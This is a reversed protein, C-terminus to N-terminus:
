RGAGAARLLSRIEDDSAERINNSRFPHGASAVVMAELEEPGASGEPFSAEFGIREFFPEIQALLRLTRADDIAPRNFEAVHPLMLGTRRGHPLHVQPAAALAHSLGMGSNGCALNAATAAELLAQLRGDNRGDSNAGSEVGELVAPLLEFVSQASAYAITRTFSSARKAWLSEIGHSLADLGSYLVVGRPANRLLAADLIAVRPQSGEVRISLDSARDEDHLVLVRSVESGSGATTPIAITPAPAEPVAIRGELEGVRLPNTLLIATAKGVALASGGGVAVVLDAGLERAAAAVADVEATGPDPDVLYTAAITETPLQGTVLDLTGIDALGRDAVVIACTPAFAEVESRLATLSGLGCVIRTQVAFTPYAPMM